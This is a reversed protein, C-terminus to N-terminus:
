KLSLSKKLEVSRQTQIKRAQLIARSLILQAETSNLLKQVAKHQEVLDIILQELTEEM